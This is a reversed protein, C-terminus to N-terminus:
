NLEDDEEARVIRASIFATAGGRRRARWECWLGLAAAAIFLVAAAIPGPSAGGIALCLAAGLLGLLVLARPRFLLLVARLAFLAISNLQRSLRSM